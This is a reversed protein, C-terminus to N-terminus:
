FSEFSFDFEGDTKKKINDITTQIVDKLLDHARQIQAVDKKILIDGNIAVTDNIINIATCMSDVFSVARVIDNMQEKSYEAMTM